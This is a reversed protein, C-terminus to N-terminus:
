IIIDLSLVDTFFTEQFHYITQIGKYICDPKGFKGWHLLNENYIEYIDKVPFRTSGSEM